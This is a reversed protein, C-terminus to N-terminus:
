HHATVAAAMLSAFSGHVGIVDRPVVSLEHFEGSPVHLTFLATSGQALVIHEDLGGGERLDLNIEVLGPLTVHPAGALPAPHTGFFRLGNVEGGNQDRLLDLYEAPLPGGLAAARIRLGAVDRPDAPPRPLEGHEHLLARMAAISTSPVAPM